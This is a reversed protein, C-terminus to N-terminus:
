VALHVAKHDLPVDGASMVGRGSAGQVEGCPAFRNVTGPVDGIEFFEAGEAQGEPQRTRIRTRIFQGVRDAFAGCSDLHSGRERETVLGPDFGTEFPM